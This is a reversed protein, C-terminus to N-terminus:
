LLHQVCLSVIGVDVDSEQSIKLIHNFGDIYPVIKMNLSFNFLKALCYLTGSLEEMVQQLTLDVKTTEMDDASCVFIPVQHAHVAPPPVIM